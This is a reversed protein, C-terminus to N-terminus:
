SVVLAHVAVSANAIMVANAINAQAANVIRVVRVHRCKRRLSRNWPKSRNKAVTKKTTTKKTAASKATTKKVPKTPM